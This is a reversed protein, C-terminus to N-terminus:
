WAMAEDPAVVLEFAMDRLDILPRAHDLYQSAPVGAYNDVRFIRGDGAFLLDPDHRSSIWDVWQLGAENLAAAIVMQRESEEATPHYTSAARGGPQRSSIIRVSQPIPTNAIPTMGGASEQVVIERESKFKGGGTWRGISPWIALASFYPPKSVATWSGREARPPPFEFARAIYRPVKRGRQMLSKPKL